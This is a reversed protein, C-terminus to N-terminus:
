STVFSRRPDITRAEARCVMARGILVMQLDSWEEIAEM